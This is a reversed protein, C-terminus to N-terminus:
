ALAGIVGQVGRALGDRRHSFFLEPHDHTCLNVQEVREVGAARLRREAASWLDLKADVTLDEDFRESVEPGVEYCCPGIAPGVIAAKPGDGLAAVGAAIIGDALGRWGAHLVALARRPGTSVIAIPLCDASMALLPIGREDTWLGDGAQGRVGAEARLVTDSHVQRNFALRGYELSLDECALRRNEEVNAADDGTGRTLNLSAYPAVSVGGVRTTFAVVYGPEHWFIM